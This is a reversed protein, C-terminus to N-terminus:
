QAEGALYRHVHLPDQLRLSARVRAGVRWSHDASVTWGGGEEWMAGAETDSRVCAKEQKEDESFAYTM